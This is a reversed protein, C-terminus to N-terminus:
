AKNKNAEKWKNFKKTAAKESSAIATFVTYQSSEDDIYGHEDFHYKKCGKPIVPEKPTVDINKKYLEKDTTMLGESGMAAMAGM